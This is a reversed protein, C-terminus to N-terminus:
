SGEYRKGQDGSTCGGGCMAATGFDYEQVATDAVRRLVFQQQLNLPDNGLVLPGLNKLSNPPPTQM